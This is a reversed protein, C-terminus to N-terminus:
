TGTNLTFKGKGAKMFRPTEKKADRLIASVLSNWPTKGAPSKWLEAEEMAVILEKASMPRSAGKLVEIAADLMSIKSKIPAATEPTKISKAEPKVQEEIKDAKIFRAENVPFKKGSKSEVIWGKSTQKVVTVEVENKGIKIRQKSGAKIESIKMKRKEQILKNIYNKSEFETCTGEDVLMGTFM